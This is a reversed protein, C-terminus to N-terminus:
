GAVEVLTIGQSNQLLLVQTESAYLVRLMGVPDTPSFVRSMLVNQCIGLNTAATQVEEFAELCQRDLQEKREVAKMGKKNTRVWEDTLNQIESRVTLARNSKVMEYKEQSFPLINTKL